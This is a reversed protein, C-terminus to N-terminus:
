SLHTLFRAQAPRGDTLNKDAIGIEQIIGHRVKLVGHSPSGPAIYWYNLGIHIAKQLRLQKAVTAVHM